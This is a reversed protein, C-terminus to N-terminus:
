TTNDVLVCTGDSVACSMTGELIYLPCAHQPSSNSINAYQSRYESDYASNICVAQSPANNWCLSIRVLECQSVSTAAFVSSNFKFGANLSNNLEETANVVRTSGFTTTPNRCYVHGACPATANATSIWTCGVPINPLSCVTPPIPSLRAGRQAAVSTVYIIFFLTLAAAGLVVLRSAM